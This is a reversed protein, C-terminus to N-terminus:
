VYVYVYVCVYESVCLIQNEWNKGQKLVTHYCCNGKDGELSIM